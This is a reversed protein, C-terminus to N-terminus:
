PYTIYQLHGQCCQNDIWLDVMVSKQTSDVVAIFDLRSEPWKDRFFFTVTWELLHAPHELITCRSGRDIM